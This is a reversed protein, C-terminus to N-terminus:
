AGDVKEGAEVAQIDTHMTGNLRRALLLRVEDQLEEEGPDGTRITLCHVGAALVV